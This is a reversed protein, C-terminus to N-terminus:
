RRIQACCAVRDIAGPQSGHPIHNIKYGRSSLAKCTVNIRHSNLNAVVCCLKTSHTESLSRWRRHYCGSEVRSAYDAQLWNRSPRKRVRM